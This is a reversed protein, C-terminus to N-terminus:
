GTAADIPAVTVSTGVPTNNVSMPTLRRIRKNNTDGLFINGASDIAIGWPSSQAFTALTALGGDGSFGEAGTGAITEITGSADVRRVRSMSLETETIYLNGSADFALNTPRGL